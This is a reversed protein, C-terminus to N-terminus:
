EEEYNDTLATGEEAASALTELPTSGAEQMDYLALQHVVNQMAVAMNLAAETIQVASSYSSDCVAVFADRDDETLTDLADKVNRKSVDTCVQIARFKEAMIGYAEQMTRVAPLLRDLRAAQFSTDVFNLVTNNSNM